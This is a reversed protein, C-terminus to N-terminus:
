DVRENRSVLGLRVASRTTECCHQWAVALDKVVPMSVDADSDGALHWCQTTVVM